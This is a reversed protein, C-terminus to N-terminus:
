LLHAFQRFILLLPQQHHIIFRINQCHQRPKQTITTIQHQRCAIRLLRQPLQSFLRITQQQINLHWALVTQLQAPLNTVIKGPWYNEQCGANLFGVLQLAKSGASIIVNHLRKGQPLQFRTHLRMQAPLRPVRCPLPRLNIKVTIQRNIKTLSAQKALPPLNIQGFLLKLDHLKQSLIRTLNKVFFADVLPNPTPVALPFAAHHRLM